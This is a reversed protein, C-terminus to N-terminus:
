KEPLQVDFGSALLILEVEGQLAGSKAVGWKVDVHSPMRKLFQSLPSLEEVSLETQDSVLLKLLINRSSYIDCTRMLPSSLAAELADSVRNEGAGFESAITFTSSESLTTKLDDLDINIKPALAILNMISQVSDAIIEEEPVLSNILDAFSCGNEPLVTFTEKNIILLSDVVNGIERTTELARMIAKKGDFLRPTTLIAIVVKGQDKTLRSAQITLSNENRYGLDAVIIVIEEEGIANTSLPKLGFENEIACTVLGKVKNRGLIQTVELGTEGIGLLLVKNSEANM